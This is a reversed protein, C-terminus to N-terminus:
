LGESFSIRPISDSFSYDVSDPVSLELRKKILSMTSPNQEMAVFRRGTKYAVCSTTGSGSFADIVVDSEDTSIDIIRRLLSEPKPTDFLYNGETIKKIEKKADQTTGVEDAKWLTSPVVELKADRLFKKVRPVGLGDSGFWINGSNIEAEMRQKNYIWCRGRPPRHVKGTEPSVVEYFQSAVAHGAQATATISQWPGRPDNDPNKYQRALQKMEIKHRKKKFAATNKAYVLIYEHNHSFTSRNERSLRHEWIITSVFANAGFWADCMVKLNAMETDDISIWLSGEDSLLDFLMPISSSILRAWEEHDLDDQYSQYRDGNRYPPDVYICTVAGGMVKKLLGMANRCDCELLMGGYKKECLRLLEQKVVSESGKIAQM